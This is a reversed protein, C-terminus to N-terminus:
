NKSIYPARKGRNAESDQIIPQQSDGDPETGVTNRIGEKPNKPHDRQSDHKGNDLQDHLDGRSKDTEPDGNKEAGEQSGAEFIYKQSEPPMAQVEQFGQVKRLPYQGTGEVESAM